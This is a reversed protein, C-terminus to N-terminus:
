LSGGFWRGIFYGVAAFAAGFVLGYCFFTAFAKIMLKPNQAFPKLAKRGVKKKGKLILCETESTLMNIVDFVVTWEAGEYEFTHKSKFGLNRKESVLEDNIYVYEKGNLFNAKCAIQNDGDQFYLEFPLKKPLAKEENNISRTM